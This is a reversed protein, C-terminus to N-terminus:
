LDYTGLYREVTDPLLVVITKNAYEPRKILKDVAAVAAGSSIGALLGEKAALAKMWDLAEDDSVALIEDVVARNFTEPVFEAGIGQILHPGAKGGSLVPSTRPEIAVVRVGPKHKKLCEGVGSITGGTGVGAVFVDVQGGTDRWIEPGTTARHVAPNAPNNFQMPMFGDPMSALIENAKAVAGGMGSVAPTLVVTAGLFGLLKRREKSMSEPMTLILKYGRVAAIWALAIGTNGSTPEVITMGPKLKGSREAAMVMSLGTRDKVSSAPNFFELKGLVRAPAGQFLRALRLLPTDGVLDVLSEAIRM